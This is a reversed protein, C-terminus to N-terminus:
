VYIYINRIDSYSYMRITYCYVFRIDPPLEERTDIRIM